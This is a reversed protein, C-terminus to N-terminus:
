RKRTRRTVRLLVVGVFLVVLIAFLLWGWSFSSSAEEKVVKPLKELQQSLIPKGQNSVHLVGTSSVNIEDKKSKSSVYRLEEPVRYTVGNQKYLKNKPIEKWMYDGFSMDLLKVTDKYARKKNRAKLTVVILNLDNRSATTILTYGSKTLYGPKGGTVGEYPTTTLLRHQHTYTTHLAQSQWEMQKLGFIRKFEPNKIAYQTLKALDYATTTHNVDFLGNPTVFHTHGLKVTQKLYANLDESFQEVGGSMHEAIAVAADNGSRLLMGELLTRLPLKEGAVIAVSSGEVNAARSSVTVMDDLRGHEIAYIATAVKTLSAPYLSENIHQEYLIQGNDANMVIAAESYLQLSQATSAESVPMIFIFSSLLLFLAKKM